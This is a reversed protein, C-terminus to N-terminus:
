QREDCAPQKRVLQQEQHTRRSAAGKTFRMKIPSLMEVGSQRMLGATAEIAVILTHHITARSHTRVNM